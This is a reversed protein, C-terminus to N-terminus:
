TRLPEPRDIRAMDRRLLAVLGGLKQARPAAKHEIEAQLRHNSACLDAPANSTSKIDHRTTQRRRKQLERGAVHSRVSVHGPLWRSRSSGIRPHVGELQEDNM